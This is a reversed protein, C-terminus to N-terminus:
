KKASNFLSGDLLDIFGAFAIEGLASGVTSSYASAGMMMAIIVSIVRQQKAQSIEGTRVGAEVLDTVIAFVEGPEALIRTSIEPHRQMEGPIAALFRGAIRAQDDVSGAARLLERLSARTSSQSALASRLRPVVEAMTDRAVAAYLEPKSDFYRYMAAATVDAAAAIDRNTAREYGVRAFCERAAQIVRKRTEEALQGPPRGIRRSTRKTRSAPRPTMRALTVSASTTGECSQVRDLSGRVGRRLQMSM